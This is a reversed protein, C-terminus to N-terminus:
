LCKEIVKAISEATAYYIMLTDLIFLIGFSGQPGEFAALILCFRGVEFSSETRFTQPTKKM